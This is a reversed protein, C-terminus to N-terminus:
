ASKAPAMLYDRIREVSARLGVRDQDAAHLQVGLADLKGTMKAELVQVFGTLETVQKSSPLDKVREELGTVRSSLASIEAATPLAQVKDVLAAHESALKTHSSTEAKVTDATRWGGNRVFTAIAFACGLGLVILSVDGSSLEM